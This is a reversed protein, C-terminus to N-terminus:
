FVKTIQEHIIDYNIKKEGLLVVYCLTNAPVATSFDISVKINTKNKVITERRNSTNIVYMPRTALFEKPSLIMDTNKLIVRKIVTYADYMKFYKHNDVDLNWAEYPFTENTGNRFFISRVKCHDFLSYDKLQNNRDTQFLVIAFEPM